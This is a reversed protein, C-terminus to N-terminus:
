WDAQLFFCRKASITLLWLGKRFSPPLPVAVRLNRIHFMKLCESVIQWATVAGVVTLVGSERFGDHSLHSVGGAAAVRVAGRQAAM